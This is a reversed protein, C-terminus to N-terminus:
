EKNYLDSRKQKTIERAKKARWQEVQKHNGSVLIEPVRMGRYERPRTYQPYELEGTQFSEHEISKSNGLVGPLLRIIGDILCLAPIEGGTLVYDGISIEEDVLSDRVRQDIGEYHGCLFILGDKEAFTHLMAQKLPKGQPTLFIVRSQPRKKRIHEICEFIPEPKMLMGPGGGFPKDDATKHRDHTFDRLNHITIAVKKKEQAIKIISEKLPSEFLQPFLTIVDIALPKKGSM